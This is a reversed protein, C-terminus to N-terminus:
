NETSKLMEEREKLTTHAPCYGLKKWVLLRSLKVPNKSGVEQFFRETNNYGYLTIYYKINERISKPHYLYRAIKSFGIKSLLEIIDKHLNLSVTSFRIIPYHHHTRKFERYKGKRKLLFLCGDTDFYGRLFGSIITKDSSTKIVEPVQITTSKKGYPFGLEHMFKNISRDRIVFGYTNRSNFFRCKIDIGFTKKFINKVNEDYYGREEVNGSIDLEVRKNPGRLYGDGVHIGCIEALEPTINIM